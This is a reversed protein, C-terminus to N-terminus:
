KNTVRGLTTFFAGALWFVPGLISPFFPVYGPLMVLLVFGIDAGSVVALNFWYGARSNRWNMTIAVVLAIAAFIALNWANQLLRGQVLGADVSMALRYGEYAAALHLAGWLAYFIAGIRYLM